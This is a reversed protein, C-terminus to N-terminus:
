ESDNLGPTVHCTRKTTSLCSLVTIIIRPITLVISELSINAVITGTINSIHVVAVSEKACGTHSILKFCRIKKFCLHFAVIRM